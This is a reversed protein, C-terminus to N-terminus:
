KTGVDIYVRENPLYMDLKERALEEIYEPSNINDKLAKLSEQYQKSEETKQQYYAQSEKYSNLKTQQSILVSIVYIAFIIVLVKIYLNKLNFFKKM